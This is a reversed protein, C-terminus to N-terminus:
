INGGFLAQGHVDFWLLFKYRSDECVGAGFAVLIEAALRGILSVKFHLM